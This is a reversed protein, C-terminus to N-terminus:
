LGPVGDFFVRTCRVVIAPHGVDLEKKWAKVLITLFTCRVVIAPHGADLEKKWAKKNETKWHTDNEVSILHPGQLAIVLNGTNTRIAIITKSHRIM